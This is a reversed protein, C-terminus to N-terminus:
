VSEVKAVSGNDFVLSGVERASHPILALAISFGENQCSDTVTISGISEIKSKGEPLPGDSRIRVLSRALAGRSEMRAHIEQGPYCGKDLAVLDELGLEFPLTDSNLEHHDLLKSLIRVRSWDHKGLREAGNDVLASMLAECHGTPVLIQIAEDCNWHLSILSNGFELWRESHIKDPDIGLGAICRAPAKGLLVIHSIAEDADKVLLNEDWPIGSSLIKRTSNGTGENGLVLAQGGLYCITAKDLIRGNANCILGDKRGLLPLKLADISVIRNLHELCSKGEIVSVSSPVLFVQALPHLHSADIMTEDSRSVAAVHGTQM